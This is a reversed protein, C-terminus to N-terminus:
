SQIQSRIQSIDPMAELTAELKHKSEKCLIHIVEIEM